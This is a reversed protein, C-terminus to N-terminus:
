ERELLRPQEAEPLEPAGLRDELRELREVLPANAEAVAERLLAKLESTKLSGEGAGQRAELKQRDHELGMKVILAVFGFIIGLVIAVTM